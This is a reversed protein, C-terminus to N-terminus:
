AAKELAHAVLQYLNIERGLRLDTLHYFDLMAAALEPTRGALQHAYRGLSDDHARHRCLNRAEYYLPEDLEAIRLLRRSRSMRLLPDRDPHGRPGDPAGRVLLTTEVEAARREYRKNQLCVALELPDIGRDAGITADTDPHRLRHHGALFATLEAATLEQVAAWGHGLEVYHDFLPLSLHSFLLGDSFMPGSGDGAGEGETLARYYRPLRDLGHHYKVGYRGKSAAAALVHALDHWDHVHGTSETFCQEATLRHFHKHRVAIVNTTYGQIAHLPTSKTV